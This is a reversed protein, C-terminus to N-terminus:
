LTITFCAGKQIKENYKFEVNSAEITGKMYHVILNYTVYLGMGTGRFQHKTTFYPEFIKNLLDKEIGGANDKITIVVKEDVKKLSIFIVRAFGKVLGFADYSNNFINVLCQVLENPYGDLKINEDIDLVMEINYKTIKNDVVSLFQEICDKFYFIRVKSKGDIFNKFDDITSSLYQTQTNIKNMDKLLDKQDIKLNYEQKLSYSTSITSIVSLPQRWQHAINSIMESMAAIKTQEAIIKEQQKAYQENEKEKTIDSQIGAFFLIKQNEDFIPSISVRNFFMTGDKKYNRLEVECPKQEVIAKKMIKIAEQDRDDNQLINMNKGRVDDITYGTLDTFHKNVFIVPQNKKTADSIVVGNSILSIVNHFIEINKYSKQLQLKYTLDEVIVAIGIVDSDKYIPYYQNKWTTRFLDSDGYEEEIIFKESNKVRDFNTKAKKRDQEDKIVDLIKTGIKIEYAWINKMIDFHKKSFSTYRYELDLSFFVVESDDLITDLLSANLDFL